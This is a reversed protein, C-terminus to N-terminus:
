PLVQPRSAPVDRTSIIEGESDSTTTREGLKLTVSYTKDADLLYQLFKTAENLAIPLM